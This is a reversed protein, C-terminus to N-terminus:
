LVLHMSLLIEQAEHYILYNALLYDSGRHEEKPQLTNEQGM